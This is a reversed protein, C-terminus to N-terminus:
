DRVSSYKCRSLMKLDAERAYTSQKAERCLAPIYPSLSQARDVDIMMDNTIVEEGKDEEPHRIASPNKQWLFISCIPM